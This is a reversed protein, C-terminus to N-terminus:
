HAETDGGVKPRSRFVVKWIITVEVVKWNSEAARYKAEKETRYLHPWTLPGGVFDGNGMKVAWAKVSKKAKRKAAM